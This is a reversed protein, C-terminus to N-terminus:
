DLVITFNLNKLPFQLPELAGVPSKILSLWYIETPVQGEQKGLFAYIYAFFASSDPAKALM